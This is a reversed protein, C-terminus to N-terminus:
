EEQGTRCKGYMPNEPFTGEVRQTSRHGEPASHTVGAVIEQGKQLGPNPVCSSASMVECNIIM